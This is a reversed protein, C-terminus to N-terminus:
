ERWYGRPLLSYKASREKKLDNMFDEEARGTETGPGGM